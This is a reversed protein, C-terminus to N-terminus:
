PSQNGNLTVGNQTGLIGVGPVSSGIPMSEDSVWLGIFRPDDKKAIEIKTTNFNALVKFNLTVILTEKNYFTKNGLQSLWHHSANGDKPVSVENINGPGPMPISNDMSPPSGAKNLGMFELVNPDWIFNTCVSSLLQPKTDPKIMVQVPVIDGVNVKASTATLYHSVKYDAPVGFMIQEGQSRTESLVNTGLVPSGDIKTLITKEQHITSPLTRIFARQMGWIPLYFDDKVLFRIKGLLRYGGQWMYGDFNWQYYSPKSPPTRQEPAKLAESRFLFVGEGLMTQQVKSADMVNKDFAPGFATPDVPLLELRTHDYQIVADTSRYISWLYITKGNIVKTKAIPMAMLDATIIQGKYAIQGFRNNGNWTRNAWDCSLYLQYGISPDIFYPTYVMAPPVPVLQTTGDPQPVKTPPVPVTQALASFSVLLSLIISKIM